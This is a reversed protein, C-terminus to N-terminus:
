FSRPWGRAQRFVDAPWPKSVESQIDACFIERLARFEPGGEPVNDSDEAGFMDQDPWVERSARLLAVARAPLNAKLATQIRSLADLKKEEETNDLTSDYPVVDGPLEEEGRLALSLGSAVELWLKEQDEQGGQGAARIRFLDVRAAVYPSPKFYRACALTLRFEPKGRAPQRAKPKSKRCPKKKSKVVVHSHKKAFQELMKVYVHVMAVLDRLYSNTQVSDNFNLLLHLVIERYEPLYFLTGKLARAAEKVKEDPCGDMAALTRLLEHYAKLAIHLRKAWVHILRKDTVMMEYYQELQTQVYHFSEKAITESVLGVEFGNCRNFEMFFHMAWFYYSEDHSQARERRLFSKVTRMMPNYSWKLFDVCLGKLFLRINLTSRRTSTSEEVPPRKNKPKARFNKDRDFDVQSLRVRDRVILANDSISKMNKVTFTGGFRPHKVDQEKESTSRAQAASALVQPSQERLMLSLIELSHFCYDTEDESSSIYLLLDELHALHMA